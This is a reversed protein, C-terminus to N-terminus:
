GVATAAEPQIGEDPRWKLRLRTRGKGQTHSVGQQLDVWIQQRLQEWYREVYRTTTEDHESDANQIQVTLVPLENEKLMELREIAKDISQHALGIEQKRISYVSQRAHIVTLRPLSIHQLFTLKIEDAYGQALDNFHKIAQDVKHGYTAAEDFRELANQHFLKTQSDYQACMAVRAQGLAKLFDVLSQQFDALSKRLDRYFVKIKVGTQYEINSGSLFKELLRETEKRLDTWQAARDRIVTIQGEIATDLMNIQQRKQEAAEASFGIRERITFSDSLDALQQKMDRVSLKLQAVEQNIRLEEEINRIIQPTSPLLTSEM